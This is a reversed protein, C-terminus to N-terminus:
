RMACRRRETGATRAFEDGAGRREEGTSAGRATGLAETVRRASQASGCEVMRVAEVLDCGTARVFQKAAELMALKRPDAAFDETHRHGPCHGVFLAM